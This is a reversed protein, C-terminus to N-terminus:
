VRRITQHPCAEEELSALAASEESLATQDYKLFCTLLCVLPNNQLVVLYIHHPITHYQVKSVWKVDPPEEEELPTNDIDAFYESMTAEEEILREQLLLFPRM